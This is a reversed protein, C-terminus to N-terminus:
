GSTASRENSNASRKEAIKRKREIELRRAKRIKEERAISAPDVLWQAKGAREPDKQKSGKLRGISLLRCMEASTSDLIAAVQQVTPWHKKGVPKM